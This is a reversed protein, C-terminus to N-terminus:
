GASRRPSAAPPHSGGDPGGRPGAAGRAFARGRWGRDQAHSRPSAAGAVAHRGMVEVARESRDTLEHLPQRAAKLTLVVGHDEAAARPNRWIGRRHAPEGVPSQREVTGRAAHQMDLRDKHHIGDLIGQRFRRAHVDRRPLHPDFRRMQRTIRRQDGSRDLFQHLIRDLVAGRAPLPAFGAGADHRGRLLALVHEAGEGAPAIRAAASGLPQAGPQGGRTHHNFLMAPADPHLFVGRPPARKTTSTGRSDAQASNAILHPPM